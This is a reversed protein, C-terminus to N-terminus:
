SSRGEIAGIRDEHDHVVGAVATFVLTDGDVRQTLDTFRDSLEAVRANTQGLQARLGQLLRITLNDTEESM